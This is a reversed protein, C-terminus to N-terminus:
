HGNKPVNKAQTLRPTLISLLFAAQENAKELLDPYIEGVRTAWESVVVWDDFSKLAELYKQSKTM